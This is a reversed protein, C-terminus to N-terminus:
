PFMKKWSGSGSFWWHLFTFFLSFTQNWSTCTTVLYAVNRYPQKSLCQVTVPLDNTLFNRSLDTCEIFSSLELLETNWSLNLISIDVNQTVIHADWNFNSSLRSCIRVMTYAAHKHLNFLLKILLYLFFFEYMM